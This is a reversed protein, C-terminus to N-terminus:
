EGPPFKDALRRLTKMNRLTTEAGLAKLVARDGVLSDTLGGEILWYLERGDVRLHDPEGSLAAVADRAGKAPQAHLFGVHLTQKDNGKVKPFPDFGAIRAVEADTRVFTAVDYGLTKKLQASLQKELTAEKKSSRFIVNGSAIFTSVDEAGAEEFCAKLADNKVTHGGVNIGRLFAIYRGM